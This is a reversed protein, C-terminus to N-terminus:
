QRTEKLARNRAGATIGSGRATRGSEKGSRELYERLLSKLQRIVEDRGKITEEDSWFSRFQKTFQLTADPGVIELGTINDSTKTRATHTFEVLVTDLGIITVNGPVNPRLRVEFNPNDLWSFVNDFQQEVVHKPAEWWGWLPSAIASAGTLFNRIGQVSYLHHVESEQLRNLFADQRRRHAVMYSEVHERDYLGNEYGRSYFEASRTVSPLVGWMTYISGPILAELEIIRTSWQSPFADRSYRHTYVTCRDTSATRDGEAPAISTAGTHYGGATLLRGIEDDSLDLVAGEEDVWRLASRMARVSDENPLSEGEKWRRVTLRAVGMRRALESDSVEARDLFENFVVKFHSRRQVRKM